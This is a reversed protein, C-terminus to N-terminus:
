GHIKDKDHDATFTIFSASSGSATIRGTGTIIIDVGTALFKVFVGESITLHGANGITIDGSIYVTDTAPSWTESSILTGGSYPDSSTGSGTLQAMIAPSASALILVWLLRKM